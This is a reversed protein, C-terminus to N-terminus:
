LRVPVTNCVLRPRAGKGSDAILAITLTAWPALLTSNSKFVPLRPSRCLCASIKIHWNVPASAARTTLLLAAATKSVSFQKARRLSTGTERPSSISIPPDNRIGSIMARAPQLNTSTPVVLRVFSASKSDTILELVANIIFTCVLLKSILPNM